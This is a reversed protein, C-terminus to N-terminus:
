VGALEMSTSAVNLNHVRVAASVEFQWIDCKFGSPLKHEEGSRVVPQDYVLVRDAWVKLNVAEGGLPTNEDFFVQAVALNGKRPLVFEKSRWRYAKRPSAVDDWLRLKNDEILWINNSWNDTGFTVPATFGDTSIVGERTLIFGDTERLAGYMGRSYYGKLTSPKYIEEWQKKSIVQETVISAGGPGILVLGETTPFYVGELASVIGRRSRCPLAVTSQTLAMTSSRTGTVTAPNGTTCVVCTQGFVGLGVIPYQVTLAYEAPWAHPRFNECFYLTNGVWGVFIGNPMAVVGELGDPPPAWLTSEIITNASVTADSLEDVYALTGVPLTTVLFFTTVGSASTITRYIRIRDIETTGPANVPQAIDSIAWSADAKGTADVAPGPQGEEGYVSVFTQMYARTINPADPDGGAPAVNMATTPVEIGVGIGASPGTSLLEARTAYKFGTSPSAWYYRDFSDNVNPTRVVDTHIDSFELWKADLMNSPSLPDGTVKDYPLKYVYKTTPALDQILSPSGIGKLAGGDTDINVAEVANVDPLLRLDRIPMAGSFAALRFAVM